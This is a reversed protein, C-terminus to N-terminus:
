FIQYKRCIMEIFYKKHKRKDIKFIKKELKKMPVNIIFAIVIGIILPMLLTILYGVLDIFIKYNFVIWSMLAAFAILFMLQKTNKKNLNM